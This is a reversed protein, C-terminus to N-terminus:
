AQLGQKKKWLAILDEGRFKKRKQGFPISYRIKGSTAQDLLWRRSTGLIEAAKGIPYVADHPIDPCIPTM